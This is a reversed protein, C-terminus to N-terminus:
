KFVFGYSGCDMGQQYSGSNVTQAGLIKSLIPFLLINQLQLVEHKILEILFFTYAFLWLHGLAGYTSLTRGTLRSYYNNSGQPTVTNPTSSAEGRVRKSKSSTLQPCLILQKKFLNITAKNQSMSKRNHLSFTFYVTHEHGFVCVSVHCMCLSVHCMCLCRVRACACAAM